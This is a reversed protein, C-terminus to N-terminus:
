FLWRDLSYRGPGLMGIVILAMLYFGASEWSHHEPDVFREGRAICKSIAGVMTLGVVLCALRTLLGVLLMGGGIVQSLVVVGGVSVPLNFKASFAPIKGLKLYGHILIAVGVFMRLILVAVATTGDLGGPFV